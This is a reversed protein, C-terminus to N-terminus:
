PRLNLYVVVNRTASGIVALDIDGDGDLDAAALGAVAVEDDLQEGRWRGDDYQYIALRYPESHGGAIIEDVGDNDLDTTLLGHGGPQTRRQRLQM